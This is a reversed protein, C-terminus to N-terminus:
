RRLRGALYRALSREVPEDPRHPPRDVRLVRGAEDRTYRRLLGDFGIEEDVEGTPGLKFRYVHGQENVIGTLQDETDYEFRVTTGAESRSAMRGMSQYTSQVDHHQDRAHVVNGEPDYAYFSRCGDRHKHPPAPIPIRHAELHRAWIEVDQEECLLVGMHDVRSVRGSTRAGSHLALTDTGSSLYVSREDPRWEVQYGLLDVYFREM